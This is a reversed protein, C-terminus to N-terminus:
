AEMISKRFRHRRYLFPDLTGHPRVMYPVNYVRCYHAAIINHFLYLSHIHVVDVKQIISSLAKAMPLSTGLFRPHQIPFFRIEVGDRFVSQDMPVDLQTPGDQNTTYITVKHGLNAVARAMEFCAKPPGGYRPALNAIVHLIKM